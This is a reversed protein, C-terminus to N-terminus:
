GGYLTGANVVPSVSQESTLAVMLNNAMAARKDDDLDVVGRESLGRLADEVMGVAAEVILRRASVVAQAQQRRLMAQAIEPAYALHTLRAEIVDVGAVQLREELELRLANALEEPNERLSPREEGASDYPYRTALGRLATESQIGVFQEYDDVDFVAKASEAVRWVVVAAIEVPNGDADNVKIRESTFNRVRLSVRKKATFPNVYWFGSRRVSGAYSGFFTLVRAQNPQVAVLGNAGLVGVLVLLLGAAFIPWVEYYIGLVFMAGGGLIALVMSVLGVFGNVVRAEKEVVQNM